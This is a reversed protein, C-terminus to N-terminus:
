LHKITPNLEPARTYMSVVGGLADSGYMTSAPGNLIEVKDLVTNDVTIINQLHGARYILNNMRVGDVMLVVRSAEFGRIVISGGGAQSRQVFANGLNEILSATTQSNNNSIAPTKIISIQQIIDQKPVVSKNASIVVEELKNATTTDKNSAEQALIVTHLLISLVLLCFVSKKMM